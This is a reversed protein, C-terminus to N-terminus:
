VNRYLGHVHRWTRGTRAYYLTQYAIGLEKAMNMIVPNNDKTGAYEKVGLYQLSANVLKPLTGINELWKYKDPLM